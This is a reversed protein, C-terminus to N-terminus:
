VYQLIKNIEESGYRQDVPFYIVEDALRYELSDPKCWKKVNPWYTACYIRHQQLKNRLASDKTWYPYVMPIQDESHAIKLQNSMELKSHLLLFSQKRRLKVFEYDVSNLLHRTLKSMKKIPQNSLKYDNESFLGYAEEASTDIRKLLHGMREFSLDTELEEFLKKETYLYAGDAIGIFKRASYFTDVGEIPNSFFSQANDIILNIGYAALKNVCDDKIGFYNTYLFAENKNLRNFDFIPELKENISYFKYEINLKQLPELIVECTFFPVYLVQYNNVKLIYELCNRATNLEICDAGQHYSLNQKLELTFYGGIADDTM